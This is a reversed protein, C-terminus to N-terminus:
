YLLELGCNGLRFRSRLGENALLDAERNQARPVLWWDVAVETRKATLWGNTAWKEVWSTMGEVLYSSDSKVVVHQVPCLKDCSEPINCPFQGGRVTNWPQVATLAGIAATLEARQSTHPTGAPPVVRFSLKWAARLHPRAPPAM